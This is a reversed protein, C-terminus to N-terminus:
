FLIEDFYKCLIMLVFNCKIYIRKFYILKCVMVYRNISINCLLMVSIVLILMNIFGFFRCVVEGWLWGGMFLSIVIVFVNIVVVFLDVMILGLIFMNIIIWFERNRSIIIWLIINGFIVGLFVVILLCGEVIYEVNLELEDDKMMLVSMLVNM